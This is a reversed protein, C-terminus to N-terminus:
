RGVFRKILMRREHVLVIFEAEVGVRLHCRYRYDDEVVELAAPDPPGSSTCLFLWQREGPGSPGPNEPRRERSSGTSQRKLPRGSQAPGEM